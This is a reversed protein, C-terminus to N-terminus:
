TEKGEKKAMKLMSTFMDNSSKFEDKTIDFSQVKSIHRGIGRRILLLSTREGKRNM